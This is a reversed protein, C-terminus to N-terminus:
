LRYWRDGYAMGNYGKRLCKAAKKPDSMIRPPCFDDPSQVGRLFWGDPKEFVVSKLNCDTFAYEIETVSEPITVDRLKTCAFVREPLRKVGRGIRVSRLPSDSFAFEGLTTVSDPIVIEELACSSFAGEGIETLGESLKIHKLGSDIFADREIVSVNPPVTLECLSKCGYFASRCIRKVGGGIGVYALNDCDSFANQSIIRVGDPITVREIDCNGDFIAGFSVVTHGGVSHPIDVCGGCGNYATLVAYGKVIKYEYDGITKLEGDSM